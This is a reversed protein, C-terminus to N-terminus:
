RGLDTQMRPLAVNVVSEDVFAMTSALVSATLVWRKQRRACDLTVGTSRIIAEGCPRAKPNVMQNARQFLLIGKIDTSGGCSRRLSRCPFRGHAVAIRAGPHPGFC